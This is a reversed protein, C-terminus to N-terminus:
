NGELSLAFRTGRLGLVGVPTQLSVSGPSLQSIKGSVYAMAGRLMNLFLDFKGDSPQYVFRDVKLETDPGLSLRTGDQLIVSLGAGSATRLADDLLVHAGEKAAIDDQGRHITVNGHAAKVTGVVADEALAQTTIAAFFFVFLAARASIM